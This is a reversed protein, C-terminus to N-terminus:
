VVREYFLMYAEVCSLDQKSVKRVITDSTYLWQESFRDSAGTPARRYTVFHGSEVDGHHEIVAKLKYQHKLTSASSSQSLVLSSLSCSKTNDRTTVNSQVPSASDSGLCREDKKDRQDSLKPKVVNLDKKESNVAGEAPTTVSEQSHPCNM